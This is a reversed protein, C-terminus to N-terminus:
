QDRVYTSWGAQEPKIGDMFLVYLIDTGNRIFM